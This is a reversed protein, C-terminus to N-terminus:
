TTLVGARVKRAEQERKATRMGIRIAQRYPEDKEDDGYAELFDLLDAAERYSLHVTVDLEDDPM